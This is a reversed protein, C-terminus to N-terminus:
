DCGPFGILFSSVVSALKVNLLVLLQHSSRLTQSLICNLAVTVLKTLVTIRNGELVFLNVLVIQLASTLESDKSKGVLLLLGIFLWM